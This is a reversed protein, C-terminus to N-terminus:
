GILPAPVIACFGSRRARVATRAAAILRGVREHALPGHLGHHYLVGSRSRNRGGTPSATALTLPAPWVPQQCPESSRESCSM